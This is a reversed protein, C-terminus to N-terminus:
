RLPDQPDAVGHCALHAITCITLHQLAMKRDLDPSQVPTCKIVPALVDQVALIEPWAHNLPPHDPTESMTALFAYADDTNRSRTMDALRTRAYILAKLTPTYSSIVNDVVDLSFGTERM